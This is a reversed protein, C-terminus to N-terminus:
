LQAAHRCYQVIRKVSPRIKHDEASLPTNDDKSPKSNVELLWAKGNTDVALDIGLEAFHADIKEEIGKAIELASRRLKALASARLGASLNSRALAGAATSLTGGRALNSVFHTGGAIRGVISTISWVGTDDRQVLARFDVPRGEVALLQLGQQVQYRQARLKGAIAKFVAPLSSYTVKRPGILGAYHCTYSGNAERRLRIIGKGLSGTIPKLFLTQHRNAMNKLVQYNKLSHSEPLVSRLSEVHRLADFVETKNLYKENFVVVGHRSKADKMFQQVNSRNEYRRSTLRNYVVDPVPFTRRTWGNHWTWGAISSPNGSVDDPTMYFVHGGYLACADTLERCFATISGFPRDALKRYVRPVMVGILPGILLARQGPKYALVLRVGHHLGLRAALAPTLRLATGRAVPVVRVEQRASGFRLTLPQNTPIRCKKIVAEGLLLTREEQPLSAHQVQVQVKTRAM